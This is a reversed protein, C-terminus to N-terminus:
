KEGRAIADSLGEDKTILDLLQFKFCAHGDTTEGDPYKPCTCSDDGSHQLLELAERAIQERLAFLDHWGQITKGYCNGGVNFYILGQQTVFVSPSYHDGEVERYLERVTNLVPENEM